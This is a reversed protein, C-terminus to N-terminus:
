RGCPTVNRWNQVTDNVEQLESSNYVLTLRRDSIESCNADKEVHEWDGLTYKYQIQTNEKGTLTIAWHTADMRKMEVKGPFWDPFNGNLRDFTGTICVSRRTSDTNAPVTVYFNVTVMRPQGTKVQRPLFTEQTTYTVREEDLVDVDMDEDRGHFKNRNDM